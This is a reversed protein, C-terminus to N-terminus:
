SATKPTKSRSRKGARQGSPQSKTAFAKRVDRGAGGAGGGAAAKGALARGAGALRAECRGPGAGGRERGQKNCSLPGAM